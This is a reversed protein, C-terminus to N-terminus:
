AFALLEAELQKDATQADNETLNQSKAFYRKNFPESFNKYYLSTALDKDLLPTKLFNELDIFNFIDTDPLTHPNFDEKSFDKKIFIQLFSFMTETRNAITSTNQLSEHLKIFQEKIIPDAIKELAQHSSLFSTLKKFNKRMSMLQDSTSNESIFDLIQFLKKIQLNNNIIKENQLQPALHPPLFDNSFEQSTLNKETQMSIRSRILPDINFTEQLTSAILQNLNQHYEQMNASNKILDQQLAPTFHDKLIAILEQQNPLQINLDTRTSEWISIRNQDNNFNLHDDCQLKGNTLNFYFNIPKGDITGQFTMIQDKWESSFETRDWIKRNQQNLNELWLSPEDLYQYLAVIPAQMAWAKLMNTSVWTMQQKIAQFSSFFTEFIKKEEASLEKIRWQDDFFPSIQSKLRKLNEDGFKEVFTSVEKFNKLRSLDFSNDLTKFDPSEWIHKVLDPNDKFFQKDVSFSNPMQDLDRIGLSQNLEKLSDLFDRAEQSTDGASFLSDKSALLKAYDTESLGSSKLKAKTEPSLSQVKATIQAQTPQYEPKLSSQLQKIHEVQKQLKIRDTSQSDLKKNIKDDNTLSTPDQNETVKNKWLKKWNLIGKENRIQLVKLDNEKKTIIKRLNNIIIQALRPNNPNNKKIEVLKQFLERPEMAKPLKLYKNILAAISTKEDISFEKFAKETITQAFRTNKQEKSEAKSNLQEKASQNKNEISPM